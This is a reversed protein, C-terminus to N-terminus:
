YFSVDDIFLEIPAPLPVYSGPNAEDQAYELGLAIAFGTIEDGTAPVVAGAAARGPKFGAFPLRVTTWADTVSFDLDPGICETGVGTAVCAPPSTAEMLLTLVAAYSAATGRVSFSLGTYSSADVCSMALGIGAGWDTAETDSVGFAYTSANGEAMATSYSGDDDGIGFPEVLVADPAEPARNFWFAWSDAPTTGDYDEFDAIKPRTIFTKSACDKLVPEGGSGAAGATATGGAAAGGATAGGLPPPPLGGGTGPFATGGSGAFGGAAFAGGLSTVMGGAGGSRPPAVTGGTASAGGTNTGGTSPVGGTGGQGGGTQGSSGGLTQGAGSAGGESGSSPGGGAAHRVRGSQGGSGDGSESTGGTQSAGGTESADAAGGESRGGPVEQGNQGSRDPGASRETLGAISQCGVLAGLTGAAVLRAWDGTRGSGGLPASRARDRTALTDRYVSM